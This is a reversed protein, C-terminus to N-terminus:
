RQIYPNRIEVYGITYYTDILTIFIGATCLSSTDINVNVVVVDRRTGSGPSGGKGQGERVILGCGCGWTGESNDAM